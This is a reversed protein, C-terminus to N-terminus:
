PRLDGLMTPILESVTPHIPMSRRLTASPAKATMIGLVGHIAEDGGVGLIAAGLIADTEADVVIKMFGQTEGKEIARAIRTMPRTGVRIKRGAKRAEAETMGVRGLPPDIYLAYATIRDSVRRADNDLLNAAVIEFDNYATHTFAGRGNCDGLAWIGPVSTRLQDDVVIYGREDLAVGAQDLGLDDTNPRRGVALLVHSGVIEPAGSTCNVGAAIDTGRPAFSICDADLRVAIGEAELIDKVADSVDEDERAILRPGKEIITVASGFRRYMQAFELGIYSGGVIVLHRPAEDLELITTNTLYNVRDLGPMDPIAARAGANIFIRAATIREDGVRIERLSEFRAHDQYVTCREMGRLWTEVNQRSTGSVADKRAKVAAMDIEVSGGLTVGFDAARRALHAAYASAILTKTPTCGTNVCTGGFLKREILAVTMGSSTLRSALPPGAQGAGIIIADFSRSM